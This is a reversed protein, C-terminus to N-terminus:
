VPPAPWSINFPDAQTTIDRLAQRYTAWSAKNADPADPMQTWDCGSLLAARRGRVEIWKEAQLESLPRTIPAIWTSDLPGWIHEPSPKAPGSGTWDPHAMVVADAQDYYEPLWSPYRVMLETKHHPRDKACSVNVWSGVTLTVTGSTLDVARNFIAHYNLAAGSDVILPNTRTIM